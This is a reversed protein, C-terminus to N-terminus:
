LNELVTFHGIDSKWVGSPLTIKAQLHWIGVVNMNGAVTTYQIKGDVGTTVFIATVTLLTRDPKKMIFQLATAASIDLATAVGASDKDTITVEIVTGIDDEHIEEVIVAM